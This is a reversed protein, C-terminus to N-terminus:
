ESHELTPCIRGGPRVPDGEVLDTNREPVVFMKWKEDNHLPEHQRVVREDAKEDQDHEWKLHAGHDVHNPEILIEQAVVQSSIQTSLWDTHFISLRYFLIIQLRLWTILM